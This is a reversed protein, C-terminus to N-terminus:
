VALWPLAAASRRINGSRRRAQSVRHVFLRGLKRLAHPLADADGAGERKRRFHQQEVLREPHEIRERAISSCCTSMSSQRLSRFVASMTVCSTSSASKRESRMTIIVLPGAASTPSM